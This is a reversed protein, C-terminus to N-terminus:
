IRISNKLREVIMDGIQEAVSESLYTGGNINVTIGGVGLAQPNKVGIITDSPSFEALPMGPRSIFDKVKQIQGWAINQAQIGLYGALATPTAFGAGQKTYITGSKEILNAYGTQAAATQAVAASTKGAAARAIAGALENYKSIQNNISVVTQSEQQTLFKNHEILAINQLERIKLLKEEELGIEKRIQENKRSFEALMQWDKTKLSDVARQLDSKKEEEKLYEIQDHYVTEMWLFEALVKKQEGLKSILRAREEWETEKNIEAQTDAIRKEQKIYEGAYDMELGTKEKTYDKTLDFLEKRLGRVKETISEVTDGVKEGFSKIEEGYKKWTDAVEGATKAANKATKEGAADIQANAEALAKAIDESSMGIDDSMSSVASSIEATVSSIDLASSLSNYISSSAIEAGSKVDNWMVGAGEKVANFTIGADKSLDGFGTAKWITGLDRKLGGIKEGIGFAEVLTKLDKILDSISSHIWQFITGLDRRVDKTWNAITAKALDWHKILILLSAVIIALLAIIVLNPLSALGIIKAAGAVAKGLNIWAGQSVLLMTNKLSLALTTAKILVVMAVFAVGLEIVTKTIFFITGALVPNDKAFDQFFKIISKVRPELDSGIAHALDQYAMGLRQSVTMNERIQRVVEAGKGKINDFYMATAEIKENTRGLVTKLVDGSAGLVDFAWVSGQGSKNAKDFGQKLYELLVIPGSQLATQMGKVSLGVRDLAEYAADSPRQVEKFMRILATGAIDMQVGSSILESLIINTEKFSFGADRASSAILNFERGYRDTQMNVNAAVTAFTDMVDNVSIQEEEFKILANSSIEVAEQLDNMKAVLAFDVVRALNETAEQASIEGGVFAGLATATQQFSFGSGKAADIAAKKFEGLQKASADVFIGARQISQNFLSFEETAKRGFNLLALSALQKELQRLVGSAEDKASIVVEINKTSDAM